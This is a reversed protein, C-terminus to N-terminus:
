SGNPFLISNICITESTYVFYKEALIPNLEAEFLRINPIHIWGLGDNFGPWCKSFDPYSGNIKQAASNHDNHREVM